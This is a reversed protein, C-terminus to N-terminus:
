NRSLMMFKINGGYGEFADEPVNDIRNSDLDLQRLNQLTRLAHSPIHDLRNHGLELWELN